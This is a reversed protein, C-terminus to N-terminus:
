RLNAERGLVENLVAQFNKTRAFAQLLDDNPLFASVRKGRLVEPPHDICSLELMLNNPRLFSMLKYKSAILMFFRLIRAGPKEDYIISFLYSLPTKETFNSRLFSREDPGNM